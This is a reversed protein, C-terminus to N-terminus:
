RQVQQGQTRMAAEISGSCCQRGQQLSPRLNATTVVPSSHGLRKSITVVDVAAILASAHTHRLAHFTVKPLDQAICTNRWTYSLKSPRISAGHPECFVLADPGPRGVGLALRMELQRRRHDRLIAVANPPLALMRKGHVTKPGKFRLGAKAEELSREVRLCAGDLDLNSWPLALLEGRRLRTALDVAAIAYLAHGELKHLVTAIEEADGDCTRVRLGTRVVARQPRGLREHVPGVGERDHHLLQFGSPSLLGLAM